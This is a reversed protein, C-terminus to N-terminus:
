PNDPNIKTFSHHVLYAFEFGDPGFLRAGQGPVEAIQVRTTDFELEGDFGTPADPTFIMWRMIVPNYECVRGMNIKLKQEMKLYSLVLVPGRYIGGNRARVVLDLRGPECKRLVDEWM